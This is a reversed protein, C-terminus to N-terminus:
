TPTTAIRNFANKLMLSIALRMAHASCVNDLVKLLWNVEHVLAAVEQPVDTELQTREGQEL